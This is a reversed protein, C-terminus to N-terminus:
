HGKTTEIWHQGSATDAVIETESSVLSHLEPDQFGNWSREFSSDPKLRAEYIATNIGDSAELNVDIEEVNKIQSGCM